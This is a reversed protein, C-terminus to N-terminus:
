PVGTEGTSMLGWIRGANVATMIRLRARSGASRKELAVAKTVAAALPIFILTGSLVPRELALKPIALGGEKLPILSGFVGVYRESGGTPCDAGTGGLTALLLVGAESGDEATGAIVGTNGTEVVPGTACIGGVILTIGWGECADPGCGMILGRSDVDAVGKRPIVSDIACIGGVTLTIGWGECTDPGCGTMAFLPGMDMGGSTGGCDCGARRKGAGVREILFLRM